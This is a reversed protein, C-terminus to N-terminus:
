IQENGIWILYEWEGNEDRRYVDVDKHSKVVGDDDGDPDRIIMGGRDVALDGSLYIEETVQEIAYDNDLPEHPAMWDLCNDKGIIPSEGAPMFVVDDALPPIASVDGTEDYENWAERLQKIQERDDIGDNAPM